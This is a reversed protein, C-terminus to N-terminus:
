VFLQPFPEMSLIIKVDESNIVNRKQLIDILKAMKIDEKRIVSIIDGRLDFLKSDLYDKTVMTAKIGGIEGKISGIEGKIGKIEGEIKNFRQETNTAFENIAELIEQNTPEKDSM